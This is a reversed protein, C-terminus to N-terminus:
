DSRPTTRTAAWSLSGAARGQRRWERELRETAAHIAQEATQLNARASHGYWWCMLQEAIRLDEAWRDPLKGDAVCAWPYAGARHRQEQGAVLYRRGTKLDKSGYTEGHGHNGPSSLYWESSLARLDRGLAHHYALSGTILPDRGPRGAGRRQPAPTPRCMRPMPLPWFSVHDGDILLLEGDVEVIPAGRPLRELLWRRFSRLDWESPAPGLESAPCFYAVRARNKDGVPPPIHRQSTTMLLWAAVPSPCRSRLRGECSASTRKRSPSVWCARASREPTVRVVILSRSRWARRGVRRVATRILSASKPSPASGREMKGSAKVAEGGVVFRDEARRRLAVHCADGGAPAAVDGRGAGM